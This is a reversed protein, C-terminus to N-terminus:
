YNNSDGSVTSSTGLVQLDEVFPGIFSIRPGISSVSKISNNCPRNDSASTAGTVYVGHLKDMNSCDKSSIRDASRIQNENIYKAAKVMREPSDKFLGLGKNCNGCLLGRVAGSTHCHDVVLGSSETNCIKCRSDQKVLMENYDVLTIGYRHKLNAERSAV